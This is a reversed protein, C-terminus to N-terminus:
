QKVLEVRRNKARSEEADNAAIPAFPGNGFARLRLFEYMEFDTAVCDNIQYSPMRTPFLPHDACGPKDPKAAAPIALCLLVLLLMAAKRM